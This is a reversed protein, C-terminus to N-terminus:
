NPFVCSFWMSNICHLFSQAWQEHRMVQIWLTNWEMSNAITTRLWGTEKKEVFATTTYSCCFLSITNLYVLGPIWSHSLINLQLNKRTFSMTMSTWFHVIIRIWISNVIWLLSTNVYLPVLRITEPRWAWLSGCNHLLLPVALYFSGYLLLFLQYVVSECKRTYRSVIIDAICFLMPSRFYFSFNRHFGLRFIEIRNGDFLLLHPFRNDVFCESIGDWFLSFSTPFPEGVTQWKTTAHLM